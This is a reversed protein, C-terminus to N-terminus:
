IWGLRKRGEKSMKELTWPPDFVLDLKVSSVGEISSVEKRVKEVLAAMFPCGPATLTMEIKVLGKKDVNIKYILGLDYVSIGLEPDLITKLKKIIKEKLM